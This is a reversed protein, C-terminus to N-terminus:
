SCPTERTSEASASPSSDANMKTALFGGAALVLFTTDEEAYGEHTEGAPAFFYEGSSVVTDPQSRQAADTRQDIRLTGSLVFTEEGGPHGHREVRAGKKMRVLCTIGGEPHARLLCMEVGPSRVVFARPENLTTPSNPNMLPLTVQRTEHPFSMNRM